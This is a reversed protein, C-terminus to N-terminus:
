KQVWDFEADRVIVRIRLWKSHCYTIAVRVTIWVLEAVHKSVRQFVLETDAFPKAVRNSVRQANSLAHSDPQADIDVNVLSDNHDVCDPQFERWLSASSLPPPGRM